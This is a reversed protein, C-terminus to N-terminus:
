PDAVSTIPDADSSKTITKTDFTTSDDTKYITMTTGSIGVHLLALIVAALSDVDATDEVNSVGRKLVDDRVQVGIAAADPLSGLQEGVTGVGTHGALAEDCVADAIEDVGSVTEADVEAEIQFFHTMTGTDSDVTASIYINYCKGKEFGNAATLQVRESYFGTTNADDLKALSGTVIPTSTEDEYIRYSPASDADTAVGTDPDHTNCCFTLYDDIKWSGYYM